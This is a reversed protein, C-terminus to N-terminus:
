LYQDYEYITTYVAPHEWIGKNAINVQIWHEGHLSLILLFPPLTSLCWIKPPMGVGMRILGRYERRHLLCSAIHIQIWFREIGVFGQYLAVWEVSSSGLVADLNRGVKTAM